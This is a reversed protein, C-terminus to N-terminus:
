RAAMRASRVNEELLRQRESEAAQRLKVAQAVMPQSATTLVARAKVSHFLVRRVSDATSDLVIM